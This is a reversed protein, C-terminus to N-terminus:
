TVSKKRAFLVYNILITLPVFVIFLSYNLLYDIGKEKVRKTSDYLDFATMALIVVAMCALAILLQWLLKNYKENRHSFKNLIFKVTLFFALLPLFFNYLAIAVSYPVSYGTKNNFDSLILYIFLSVLLSLLVVLINQLLRKVM